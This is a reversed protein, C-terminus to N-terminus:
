ARKLDRWKECEEIEKARGISIVTVQIRCIVVAGNKVFLVKKKSPKRTKPDIQQMLEIIECEEVVSHIHLVAKYGATFIANDLLELIHLQATFEHVAAIPKKHCLSAIADPHMRSCSRM